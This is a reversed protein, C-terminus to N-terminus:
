LGADLLWKRMPIRNRTGTTQPSGTSTRTSMRRSRRAPRRWNPSANRWTRSMSSRWKPRLIRVLSEAEGPTIRGEGVATVISALTASVSKRDTITPLAIDITREKRPPCIRELCLRMAAPDENLAMTIAKQILREGSDNLLKEFFLTSKNRSSPPRGAPNGSTGKSWRGRKHPKTKADSLM